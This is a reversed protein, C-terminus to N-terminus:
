VAIWLGPAILGPSEIIEGEDQGGGRGRGRGVSAYILSQLRPM